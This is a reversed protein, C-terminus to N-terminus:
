LRNMCKFWTRFRVKAEYHCSWSEILLCVMFDLRCGHCQSPQIMGQRGLRNKKRWKASMRAEFLFFETKILPGIGQRAAFCNHRRLWLTGKKKGQAVAKRPPLNLLKRVGFENLRLAAMKRLKPGLGCPRPWITSPDPSSYCPAYTDRPAGQGWNSLNVTHPYETILVMPCFIFGSRKM